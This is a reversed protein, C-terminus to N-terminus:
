TARPRLAELAERFQKAEVARTAAFCDAGMLGFAVAQEALRRLDRM